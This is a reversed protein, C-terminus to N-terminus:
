SADDFASKAADKQTSYNQPQTCKPCVLKQIDRSPVIAVAGPMAQVYKQAQIEQNHQGHEMCPPAAPTGRQADTCIHRHTHKHIHTHIYTCPPAPPTGRQADTYAYMCTCAMSMCTCAM